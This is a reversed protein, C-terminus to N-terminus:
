AGPWGASGATKAPRRSIRAFDSSATSDALRNVRVVGMSNWPYRPLPLVEIRRFTRASTVDLSDSATATSMGNCLSVESSRSYLPM